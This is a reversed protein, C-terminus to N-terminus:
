ERIPKATTSHISEDNSRNRSGQTVVSRRNWFLLHERGKKFTFNSTTANQGNPSQANGTGGSEFIKTLLVDFDINKAEVTTTGASELSTATFIDINLEDGLTYVVDAIPTNQLNVEVRKNITDKIRYYFNSPRRRKQQSTAQGNSSSAILATEFLYFGDRSKTLLLNNTEALKSLALDFPVNNLYLKLPSNTIEPSFLLNKGSIDMIKRFVKELREGKLDFSLSKTDPFYRVNVEEEKPTEIPAVYRKISLINGTFDIDLNYEKILFILVDSVSVDSFNNVININSLAPSVNINVNHVKAIALLFNSLTTQSININIPEDLGPADVKLLELQNQLTNIRGMDVQASVSFFLSGFLLLSALIKNM